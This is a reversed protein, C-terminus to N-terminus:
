NNKRKLYGYNLIQKLVDEKFGFEFILMYYYANLYSSKM